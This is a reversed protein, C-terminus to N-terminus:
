PQSDPCASPHAKQAAPTALGAEYAAMTLPLGDLPVAFRQANYIQPLLCCDALTLSDGYCYVSPALGRRARSEALAQLQREFAELGGRCWHRYWATKHDEDQALEHVLYKLVRLNTPPHMECAVMQALARVQARGLADSPLLPPTPHLEDLYEIIAMSETLFEGDVELVPVLRDPSIAAHAPAKQEGKVLHVPQYDYALGKAALAIRVRYSASSRFYNHLKM